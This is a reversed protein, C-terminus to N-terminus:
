PRALAYLTIGAAVAVNLSDVGRRMPITVRDTALRQIRPPLGEAESGLLIVLPREDHVFEGIPQADPALTTAVIRYGGSDALQELDPAPRDSTFVAMRLVAAMSVRLVRRSFPDATDPTVVVSQIGFAAASRIMSGLNEPITVGCAFIVPIGSPPRPLESVPQQPPRTGCALVGRHFDFGVLQRLMDPAAILVDVSPDLSALLESHRGEEILVSECVHSSALLREVVLRGEAIFRNGDDASRRDHLDRYPALRPDDLSDLLIRAM